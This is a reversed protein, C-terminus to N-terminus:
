KVSYLIEGTNLIDDIFKGADQTRDFLMPEILTSINMTLGWLIASDKLLDGNYKDFIVAIDIDSEPTPTGNVYSGYFVIAFPSFVKRVEAAYIKANELATHKDM